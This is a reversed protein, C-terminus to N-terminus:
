IFAWARDLTYRLDTNRTGIVVAPNGAVVSYPAVNKTVVAGACVVAGKGVTINPLIITRCSIWAYDEIVVPGGEVSFWPDDMDHQATWVWVGSSFNVNNGITLGYSGDLVAESGIITNNGIEIKWPQRINAKGYVLSKSGIKMKLLFKYLLRRLIHSPIYGILITIYLIFGLM